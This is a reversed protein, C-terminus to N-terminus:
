LSYQWPKLVSRFLYEDYTVCLHSPPPALRGAFSAPLAALFLFVNEVQLLLGSFNPPAATLAFFLVKITLRGPLVDPKHVGGDRCAEPISLKFPDVQPRRLYM